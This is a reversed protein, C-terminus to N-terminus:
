IDTFLVEVLLVFRLMAVPCVNCLFIEERQDAIQSM